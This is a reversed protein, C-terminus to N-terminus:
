LVTKLLDLIDSSVFVVMVIPNVFYVLYSRQIFILRVRLKCCLQLYIKDQVVIRLM